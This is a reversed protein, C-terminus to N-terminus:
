LPQSQLRKSALIALGVAILVFVLSVLAIQDMGWGWDILWGMVAPSMASGLIMISTALARISGLYRTGYVEGWIVNYTALFLGLAMGTAVMYLWISWSNSFLILTMLAAAFPTLFYPLLRRAGGWRDILIGALLGSAISAIAFASYANAFVNLSWGKEAVLHVQHFQLGTMVIPISMLAPLMLYFRFDRLMELRTWQRSESVGMSDLYEEQTVLYRHHRAAHGRLQLLTLPLVVTIIFIASFLWSLRWGVSSLLWAAIAPFLAFGVAFGANSIGVALGREEKFYRVMSTMAAHTMLGQGAFRLGFVAIFVMWLGNSAAFIVAFSALLVCSAVCFVRLDWVDILRGAWILAVASLLTALAYMNGLDGASLGFTEQIAGNFLSFFYTQGFSSFVTVGFGFSLFCFNRRVFLFKNFRTM